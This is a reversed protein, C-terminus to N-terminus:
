SKVKSCPIWRYFDHVEDLNQLKTSYISKYYSRIIKKIEEIATRIDGKENRIKNIQINDRHGYTLKVLSKDIKNIKDFFWMKTKNIRKIKIKTEIQNSETILKVIEQWRNM